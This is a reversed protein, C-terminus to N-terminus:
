KEVLRLRKSVKYEGRRVMSLFLNGLSTQLYSLVNYLRTTDFNAVSGIKGSDHCIYPNGQHSNMTDELIKTAYTFAENASALIDCCARLALHSHPSDQHDPFYKLLQSIRLIINQKETWHQSANLGPEKIISQNGNEAVLALATSLESLHLLKELKVLTFCLESMSIANSSLLALGEGNQLDYNKLINQAMQMLPIADAMGISTEYEIKLDNFNPDNIWKIM